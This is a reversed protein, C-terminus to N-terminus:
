VSRGRHWVAWGSALQAREQPLQQASLYRGIACVARRLEERYLGNGRNGFSGLWQHSHAQLVTTRTRVVEGSSGGPTAQLVCSM